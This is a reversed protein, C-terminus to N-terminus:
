LALVCSVLLRVMSGIMNQPVLLRTGWMFALRNGGQWALQSMYTMIATDGGVSQRFDMAAGISCFATYDRTGSPFHM